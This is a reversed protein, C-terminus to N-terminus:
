KEGGKKKTKKNEGAQKSENALRVEDNGIIKGIERSENILMETRWKEGPQCRFTATYGGDPRRVVRAHFTRGIEKSRPGRPENQVITVRSDDNDVIARGRILRKDVDDLTSFVDVCVGEFKQKKIDMVMLKLEFVSAFSSCKKSNGWRKGANEMGYLTFRLVGNMEAVLKYDSSNYIVEIFLLM